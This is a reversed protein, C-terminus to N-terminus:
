IRFSVETGSFSFAFCFLWFFFGFFTCLLLKMTIITLAQTNGLNFILECERLILAQSM